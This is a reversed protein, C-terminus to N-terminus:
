TKDKKGASSGHKLRFHDRHQRDAFSGLARDEDESGFSVGRAVWARFREARRALKKAQRDELEALDSEVESSDFRHDRVLTRLPAAVSPWTAPVQWVRDAESWKRGPLAQLVPLLVPSYSCVIFFWRGARRIIRRDQHSRDTTQRYPPATSHELSM